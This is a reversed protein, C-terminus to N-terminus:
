AYDAAILSEPAELFSSVSQLFQAADSGYLIRHDCTLTLRLQSGVRISGDRVVPLTRIAGVSLIAAQGGNIIATFDTVGYMGLNSITFTGDSLETPMIAGDRVRAVLEKTRGAVQSLTLQDADMVVPVFLAGDIAVAIGVNVQPAIEVTDDLFRANVGPHERLALGVAKVVIDNVSPTHASAESLSRLEVLLSLAADMSVDCSVSFEPVSAKTQVMRQAIIKQVKSLEVVRGGESPRQSGSSQSAVSEAPTSGMQDSAAAEIDSKLVRGGAGTGVITSIDVNLSKALKRALPSISPREAAGGPSKPALAPDAKMRQGARRTGVEPNVIEM